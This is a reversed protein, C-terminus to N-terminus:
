FDDDSSYDWGVSMGPGIFTASIEIILAHEFGQSIAEIFDDEDVLKSALDKVTDQAFVFEGIEDLYTFLLHSCHDEKELDAPSGCRPCALKNIESGWPVTLRALAM